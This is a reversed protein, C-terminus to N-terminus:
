VINYLELKRQRLDNKKLKQIQTEYVVLFQLLIFSESIESNEVKPTACFRFSPFRPIKWNKLNLLMM